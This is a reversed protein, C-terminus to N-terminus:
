GFMREHKNAKQRNERMNVLQAVMGAMGKWYFRDSIQTMTKNVVVLTARWQQMKLVIKM